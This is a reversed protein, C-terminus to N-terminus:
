CGAWGMRWRITERGLEDIYRSPHGYVDYYVAYAEGLPDDREGRYGDAIFFQTPDRGGTVTHDGIQLNIADRIQSIRGLTDYDYEIAPLTPHDATFMQHPTQFPIANQTWSSSVANNLVFQTAKGMPDNFSVTPGGIFGTM